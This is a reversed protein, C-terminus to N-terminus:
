WENLLDRIAADLFDMFDHHRGPSAVCHGFPSDFVRLEANAMMSVEIANDEPTFYLDTSCPLVIARARIAGLARRFDGEYIENDSIDGHQWTWLKALLDNADWALHDQEWDVMLEEITDFGLKRYLGERYFTQSFAWGAYVRAFAKLGAAPPEDYDGGQWASDAQLAVKVSDLFVFNHPSCRASGCIPLISGVRDPYQAAWQYAQMAGMSWGAVLAVQEVGLAESLLRQQCAVNDYLTCDPFRPGDHPPPTNSPSSSLGNGFLNTLIIFHRDPDLAKGAGFYAENDWHKGTYYSPIVVANDQAASLQGATKYALKADPLVTGSQLEVDGLAFVQHDSV